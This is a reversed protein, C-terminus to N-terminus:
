IMARSITLCLETIRLIGQHVRWNGEVIDLNEFDIGPNNTHLFHKDTSERLTYFGWYEGNLYLVAPRYAQYDLGTEKMLQSILVDRLKTNGNDQGSNRLVISQYYTYPKESFVSYHIFESGYKKRADIGFSKQDLAQTYEGHISIGVDMSFGLSGDTEFFEIHAPKEWDQWFNAGHYPYEPEYDHGFTYIGTEESWLNEPDTAISVVAMNNQPDLIYTHTVVPSPLYGKKHSVARVVTTKDITLTETYVPSFLGPESGDTTYYIVADDQDVTITLSVSDAYLGGAISFVPKESYGSVCSYNNNTEGPHSHLILTSQNARWVAMPFTPPSCPFLWSKFLPKTQMQFIFTEGAASLGFNAYLYKEGQLKNYESSLFVIAFDGPRVHVRSGGNHIKESNDSLWYDALNIPSNGTNRIEVWDHFNGDEDPLTKENRSM